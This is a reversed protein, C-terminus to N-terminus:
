VVALLDDLSVLLTKRPAVAVDEQAPTLKTQLRHQTHSRDEVADRRCWKYIPQASVRFREALATGTDGSAQIAARVRPTTTAQKHLHILITAGRGL